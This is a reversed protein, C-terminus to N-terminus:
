TILLLPWLRVIVIKILMLHMYVTFSVITAVNQGPLVKVSQIMFKHRAKEAADLEFPQRM